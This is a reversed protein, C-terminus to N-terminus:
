DKKSKLIIGFKSIAKKIEKIGKDGMGDLERLDDESKKAIDAVTKFGNSNLINATRTSFSLDEIKVNGAEQEQDEFTKKKISSAEKRKKNEIKEKKEKQEQEEVAEEDGRIEAIANFQGMLIEIAQSYAEQPTITGNTQIELNIRDYDTRKGVRM